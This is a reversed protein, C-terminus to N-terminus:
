KVRELMLELPHLCPTLVSKEEGFEFEAVKLRGGPLQM